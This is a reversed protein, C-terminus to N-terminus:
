NRPIRNPLHFFLAQLFVLFSIFLYIYFPPKHDILPRNSALQCLFDVCIFDGSLGALYVCMKLVAYKLPHVLSNPLMWTGTEENRELISGKKEV